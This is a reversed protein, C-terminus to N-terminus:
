IRSRWYAIGLCLKLLPLQCDLGPHGMCLLVEVEGYGECFKGWCGASAEERGTAEGLAGREDETVCDDIKEM